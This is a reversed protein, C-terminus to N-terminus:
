PLVCRRCRRAAHESQRLQRHLSGDGPQAGRPSTGIGRRARRLRYRIRRIAPARVPRARNGRARFPSLPRGYRSASWRQHFSQATGGARDRASRAFQISYRIARTRRTALARRRTTPVGAHLRVAELHEPDLIKAPRRRCQVSRWRAHRRGHRLARGSNERARSHLQCRPGRQAVTRHRPLDARPDTSLERRTQRTSQTESVAIKRRTRRVRISGALPVSTLRRPMRIAAQSATPRPPTRLGTRQSQEHVTTPATTRSANEGQPAERLPRSDRGKARDAVAARSRSTPPRAARMTCD